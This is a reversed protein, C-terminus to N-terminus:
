KNNLLEKYTTKSVSSNSIAYCTLRIQYKGKFNSNHVYKTEEAKSILYTHLTQYQAGSLYSVNIEYQYCPTTKSNMEWTIKLSTFTMDVIFSKFEPQEFTPTDPQSITGKIREPNSADYLNQDDVALGSSGFFYNTTYGIDHTGATNFGWSAPDYSLTTTNLSIWKKYNRDYAYMNKIRFSREYGFYKDYYNEQFQSLGGSIFSNNLKTNFYAFLTWEKTVLNQIWEGVFTNQTEPNVWSRLVFRHWVNTPWDFEHIYNTGEGEGGFSSEDGKPYMRTARHSKTEGNEKYLVEWFSLIATKGNIVTQLGGYAGGGQVDKHTKKFDTLDMQWNCLSWYTSNPTDIGVFDITFGDFQRSTKSLDPDSYINKAMPCIVFSLLVLIISFTFKKHPIM